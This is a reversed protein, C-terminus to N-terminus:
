IKIIRDRKPACLTISIINIRLPTKAIGSHSKNVAIFNNFYILTIGHDSVIWGKHVSRM